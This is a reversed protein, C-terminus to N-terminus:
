GITRLARRARQLRIHEREAEVDGVGLRPELARKHEEIMEIQAAQLLMPLQGADLRAALANIAAAEAALTPEPSSQPDRVWRYLEASRESSFLSPTLEGALELREAEAPAALLGALLEREATERRSLSREILSEAGAGGRDGPSRALTEALRPELGLRDAARRAQETREPTDPSAALAERVANYAANTGQAAALALARDVLFRVVSRAGRLAEDFADTGAELLEAPDKGSPLALVRVEFGREEALRMGRVTAEQGALDSDFCLIILPTLRRLERLQDATLSTGMAAVAEEFGARHLAIVDTYGEVVIARGKKAITARALDLGYLLRSKDFIASQPSNLYKPGEGGEMVRAGFGRVRGRADCLPFIVRGRFRDQLGGQAPRAIAAAELEADDYGKARAAQVVRRGSSPAFGLRFREIQEPGIARGGLYARAAAAERSSELYRQYFLAVESLVADLRKSAQRRREEEGSLQEREVEIGYRDALTEIAEEFTMGELEMVLTLVDGGKGCGFCHYLKKIADVSLSASREEHFPCRAMVGSGTRRVPGTRAEVLEVLDAREKVREVTQTTIRGAM